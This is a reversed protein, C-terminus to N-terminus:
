QFCIKGEKKETTSLSKHTNELQQFMTGFAFQEKRWRKKKREERRIYIHMNKKERKNHLNKPFFIM